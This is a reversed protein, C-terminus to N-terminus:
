CYGCQLCGICNATSLSAYSYMSHHRQCWGPWNDASTHRCDTHESNENGFPQRLCRNCGANKYCSTFVFQGHNYQDALECNGWQLPRSSNSTHISGNSYM